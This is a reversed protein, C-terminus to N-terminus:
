VIRVENRNAFMERGVKKLPDNPPCWGHLWRLGTVQFGYRPILSDVNADTFYHGQQGGNGVM